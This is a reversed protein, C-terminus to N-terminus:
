LKLAHLFGKTKMLGMQGFLKMPMWLILPQGTPLSEHQLGRLGAATLTAPLPRYDIYPLFAPRNWDIWYPLGM